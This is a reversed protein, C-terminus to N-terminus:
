SAEPEERREQEATEAEVQAWFQDHLIGGERKVRTAAADLLQRLRPSHALVLRELEEDNTVAVLAAVARGNKTIIVPGDATEDLYSSLHTKVEAVPVIKM